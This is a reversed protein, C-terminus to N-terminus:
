AVAGYMGRSYRVAAGDISGPIIRPHLLGDDSKEAGCCVACFAEGFRVWRSPNKEAPQQSPGGLQLPTNARQGTPGWAQPQPTGRATQPIATPSRSLDPSPHPTLLAGADNFAVQSMNCPGGLRGSIARPLTAVPAVELPHGSMARAGPPRANGTHGSQSPRWRGRVVTGDEGRMVVGPPLGRTQALWCSEEPTRHLRFLDRFSSSPSPLRYAVAASTNFTPLGPPTAIRPPPEGTPIAPYKVETDTLPVVNSSTSSSNKFFRSPRKFVTLDDLSFSLKRRASPADKATSEENALVPLSPKQRVSFSLQTRLTAFSKQEIIPELPTPHHISRIPPSGEVTISQEVRIGDESGMSNRRSGGTIFTGIWSPKGEVNEIGPSCYLAEFISSHSSPDSESSDINPHLARTSHKRRLSKPKAFRMSDDLTVADQTNLDNTSNSLPLRIYPAPNARTSM